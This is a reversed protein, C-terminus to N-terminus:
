QDRLSHGGFNKMLENLNGNANTDWCFDMRIMNEISGFEEGNSIQIGIAKCFATLNNIDDWAQYNRSPDLSNSDDITRIPSAVYKSLSSVPSISEPIM